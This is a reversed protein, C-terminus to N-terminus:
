EWRFFRWSILGAGITVGFTILMAKMDWGFGLWPDQLLLIVWRLPTIDGVTRMVTTMVEPPPGGGSLIMMVFFLLLGIGQAARTTPFLAGLLIGLVTFCVTGILFALLFLGWSEALHVEYALMAVIIVIIGGLISIFFGVFVQSGFIHWISISSARFRRLVGRERYGTLHVPMAVVGISAIILGIYAPVYYDLPGVGRFIDGGPDPTNGFVGGMVLVLIVPLAFTFVMTLPERIFLKMEVWTLKLLTQM